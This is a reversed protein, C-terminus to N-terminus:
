YVPYSFLTIRMYVMNFERMRHSGWNLLFFFPFFFCEETNMSQCGGSSLIECRFNDLQLQCWLIDMHCQCHYNFGKEQAYNTWPSPNLVFLGIMGFSLFLGHNYFSQPVNNSNLLFSQSLFVIFLLITSSLNPLLVITNTSDIQLWFDIHRPGM